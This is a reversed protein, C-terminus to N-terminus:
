LASAVEARRDMERKIRQAEVRNVPHYDGSNIAESPLNYGSPSEIWGARATYRQAPADFFAALDDCDEVHVRILAQRGDAFYRM